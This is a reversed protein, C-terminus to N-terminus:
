KCRSRSGEACVKKGDIWIAGSLDAFLFDAGKLEAGTFDAGRLVSRYFLAKELDAGRFSAGSLDAKTFDANALDADSLDVNVMTASFFKARRGDVAKMNSGSLDSRAFHADQLVAGELNVGDFPRGDHFCDQWNVGPAAPDTCAAEAGGALLLLSIAGALVRIIIVHIEM